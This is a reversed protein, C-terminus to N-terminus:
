SLEIEVFGSETEVNKLGEVTFKELKTKLATFNDYKPEKFFRYTWYTQFLAENKCVANIFTRCEQILSNRISEEEM